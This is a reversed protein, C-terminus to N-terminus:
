IIATRNGPNIQFFSCFVTFCVVNKGLAFRRERRVEAAGSCAGSWEQEDETDDRPWNRRLTTRSGCAAPAAQFGGAPYCTANHALLNLPQMHCRRRWHWLGDSLTVLSAVLRKLLLPNHTFYNRKRNIRGSESIYNWRTTMSIHKSQHFLWQRNVFQTGTPWCGYYPDKPAVQIAVLPAWSKTKTMWNLSPSKQRVAAAPVAEVHLKWLCRVFCKITKMEAEM